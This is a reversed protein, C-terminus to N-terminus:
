SRWIGRAGGDRGAISGLGELLPRLTDADPRWRGVSSRYIPQRVQVVSATRVARETKYFALCADDWDLGCHAIIRRAQPELDDVLTEYQVDLMVGPPLVRRWHEMLGRYGAFYRGLEGLEFTFPQEGSFLLSFCSLCTDIPDRRTHIIRANPLVLHILGAACFNALAKDTIRAAGPDLATLRGLYAAALERFQEPAFGPVAEPFTSAPDDLGASRMAERFDSREGGAVVLRHSALIQEVLTSGSRPMGVIFIPVTSPNGSGRCSAMVTSTFVREIREFLLRVAPEEYTIQQRKLRNGELLHQFGRAQEGVDALAKGLAFHLLICDDESLAGVDDAHALAAALHPEGALVRRSQFLAYYARVCTPDIELAREFCARAEEIRGIEELLSGLDVHTGAHEPRLELARQLHSLAEQHRNLRQLVSALASQTEPFDPRVTSARLYHPLAEDDRRLVQLAAGLGHLAEPYDPDIALAAQYDAIADNHRQLAQLAVARACYAEAYDEDIALARDHCAIAEEHRALYQLATALGYWAEACDADLSLANEYASIAEEHRQLGCLATALNSYAEASHPNTELARGTLEVSEQPQGQQLRVVGLYLLAEFHAPNQSLILQYIQQAEVLRGQEHCALARAIDEAPSV